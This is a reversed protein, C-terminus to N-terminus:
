NSIFFAVFEKTWQEMQTPCRIGTTNLFDTIEELSFGHHFYGTHTMYMKEGPYCAFLHMAAEEISCKCIQSLTDLLLLITGERYSFLIFNHIPTGYSITYLTLNCIDKNILYIDKRSPNSLFCLSRACDLWRLEEMRTNM